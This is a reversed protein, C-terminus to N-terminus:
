KVDERLARILYLVIFTIALLFIVVAIASAYGLRGTAFATQFMYTSLLQSSNYPGGKTLAYVIDFSRLADIVIVSVVVSNVGRLQPMTISRLLQWRNAGDVRAAETLAPDISKLGALYLVMIYGSSRWLSAVILAYLVTKPDALWIHGWSKLRVTQLANNFLGEPAYLVRWVLATVVLSFIVPLFILSRYVGVGRREARLLLALSLGLLGSLGGFVLLWRVTNKFGTIFIPDDTLDRFNQLGVPNPQGVGRWETFSLLVGQIAPAFVVLAELLFPVLIFATVTPPLADVRRRRYPMPVSM